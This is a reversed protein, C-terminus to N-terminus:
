LCNRRGFKVWCWKIYNADYYFDWSTRSRKREDQGIINKGLIKIHCIKGHNNKEKRKVYEKGCHVLEVTATYKETVVNRRIYTIVCEVDSWMKKGYKVFKLLFLCVHFRSDKNICYESVGLSQFIVRKYEPGRRQGSPSNM